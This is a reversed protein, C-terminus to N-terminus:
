DEKRYMTRHAYVYEFICKECVCEGNFDYYIDGDYLDTEPVIRSGCRCCKKDGVAVHRQNEENAWRQAAVLNELVNDNRM